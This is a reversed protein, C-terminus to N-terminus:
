FLEVEGASMSEQHARKRSKARWDAQKVALQAQTQALHERAESGGGNADTAAIGRSLTALYDELHTLQARGHDIIQSAIDEFQLARVALSVKADIQKTIDSVASLNKALAANMGNVESLMDDVRGKATIAVNMDKSAVESVIGRVETITAKAREAEERIRENFQKSDQSLKHVEEAVVAFGRGAAGARAAEINANLALLKTQDAIKQVHELLEFIADMQEVMDDIKYVTDMSQKSVGILLEILYSLITATESAFQRLNLQDSNAESKSSVNDMMSVLLDHQSRTHANLSQFSDNLKAISDGLLARVQHFDGDASNCQETATAQVDRMLRRLEHCFTVLEGADRAAQVQERPPPMAVAEAAVAQREPQRRMSRFSSIGWAAAPLLVWAPLLAEAPLLWPMFPAAASVAVAAAHTKLFNKVM